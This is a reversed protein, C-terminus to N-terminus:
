WPKPKPRQGLKHCCFRRHNQLQVTCEDTWIVDKFDDAAHQIAWERRKVKTADRILQCYIPVEGSLGVLLLAADSSLECPSRM